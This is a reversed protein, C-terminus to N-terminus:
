EGIKGSYKDKEIVPEPVPYTGTFCGYCFGCTANDAINQVNEISLYGLSDAGLYRCIEETNMKCAILNERSDIDTGFYCPNVFPPSSIRLHVEKAGTERVLSVIRRMTTGRVISDDILIVRKNKISAKITNLKIRVARDREEQTPQIFTRGIYRNKIFGVEYPIKSEKSYGLAADLGSDPVGMVVDADVPHQKALFMGANIRATHVCANQIVSDPRAFYIYEFVCMGGKKGCHTKISKTGEKNVVVIEGPEMDRTFEAGISDLACSESAFVTDNGMKGMCLPRFGYPDRVAILKSPSMIVLSYAGEIEKVAESIADEITSTHMRKKTIINIIIETDSTTHFVTGERQLKERLAVANTVSGNHAIAMAGKIHRVVLPQANNRSKQDMPAYRVHGIAMNGKGLKLLAEKHFVEPVLGLDSHHQMVGDSCVAIGSSEQGRHQLAFLALYVQHAMEANQNNSHIGFIGCSEQM